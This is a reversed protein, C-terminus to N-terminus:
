DAIMIQSNPELDHNDGIIEHGKSTLATQRGGNEIVQLAAALLPETPNGISGLDNVKEGIEVDPVLGSNPVALGEANRTIAILPLLAYTHTPNVNQPGYDPSDYIISSAQSKGVTNKGIHVVEIYSSLSNIVMESASASSGTAIVYVKNLNLSNISTGNFSNTFNYTSNFNQKQDNYNLSSFAAGNFQGTIMSGLLRASNVSGGPNYRLDLVLKQVGNSSFYGFVDNLQNNFDGTFGNYMLYGVQEGGINFVDYDYVPNETYPVKTLQIQQNLDSIFDDTVDNPTGNDDYSGLAITYSNTGLLTRYNNITLQTGNVSHFIDGRVLGKNEADTSPLIYRVYGYVDTDTSSFRFLGYEMGNHYSTGNLQQELAFYDDTIASFRDITQREYILSEFLNEPSSFSNLYSDYDSSEARNTQLQPMEDKYIYWDFMARYVFDKIDQDTAPNDDLDEFCSNLTCLVLLNLIIFRLPKM